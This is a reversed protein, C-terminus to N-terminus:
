FTAASYDGAGPSQLITQQRGVRQAASQAAIQRQQNLAVGDNPVPMVPTPQSAAPITPTPNLLKTLGVGAATTLATSGLSGLIASGAAAAGGALGLGAAATAAGGLGLGAVGTAAGLGAVGAATTAGAAIGAAGAATTAGAAPGALSAILAGVSATPM